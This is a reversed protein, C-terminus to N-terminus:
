DGQKFSATAFLSRKETGRQGTSSTQTISKPIGDTAEQANTAAAVLDRQSVVADLSNMGRVAVEFKPDRKLALQYMKRSNEIQGSMAFALGLNCLTEEDKCGAAQFHQMAPRTKELCAYIFGLHNHARRNEPDLEVAHKLTEEAKVLDGHLYLSYGYDTLLESNAPELRIAEEYLPASSEESGLQDL